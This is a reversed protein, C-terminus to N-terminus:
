IGLAMRGPAYTSFPEGSLRAVSVIGDEGFSRDLDAPAAISAPAAAALMGCLTLLWLAARRAREGTGAASIM